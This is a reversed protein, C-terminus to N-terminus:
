KLWRRFGDTSLITGTLRQRARKGKRGGYHIRRALTKLSANSRYRTIALLMTLGESNPHVGDKLDDPTYLPEDIWDNIGVSVETNESRLDPMLTQLIQKMDSM